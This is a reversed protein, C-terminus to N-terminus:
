FDAYGYKGEWLWEGPRRNLPDNEKAIAPISIVQWGGRALLRGALDDEHWRTM